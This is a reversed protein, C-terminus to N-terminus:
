TLMQEAPGNKVSSFYYKANPEVTEWIMMQTIAYWKPDTHNQYGYGYYAIINMKNIVEESLGFTDKYGIYGEYHDEAMYLFPEICYVLDGNSKHLLFPAGNKVQEGKVKTIYMSSM